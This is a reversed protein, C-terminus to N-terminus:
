FIEDIKLLLYFSSYILFRIRFQKMLTREQCNSGTKRSLRIRVLKKEERNPDPDADPDLKKKTLLPDPDAVRTATTDPQPAIMSPHREVIM